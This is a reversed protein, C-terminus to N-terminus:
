GCGSPGILVTTRGPPITLDLKPIVVEGNYTKSVGRLEIM